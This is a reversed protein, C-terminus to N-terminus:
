FFKRLTKSYLEAGPTRLLVERITKRLHRNNIRYLTFLIGDPFWKDGKYNM